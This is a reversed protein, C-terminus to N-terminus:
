MIVNGIPTFQMLYHMNLIILLNDFGHGDQMRISATSIRVMITFIINIVLTLSNSETITKEIETHHM